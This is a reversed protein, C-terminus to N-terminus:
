YWVAWYTVCLSLRFTSRAYRYGELREISHALRPEQSKAIDRRSCLLDLRAPNYRQPPPACLKEVRRSAVWM